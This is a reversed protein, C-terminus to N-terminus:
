GQTEDKARLQRILRKNKKGDTEGMKLKKDTDDAAAASICILAVVKIDKGLRDSQLSAENNETCSQYNV